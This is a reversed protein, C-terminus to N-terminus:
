SPQDFCSDLLQEPSWTKTKVAFTQPETTWDTELVYQNEPDYVLVSMAAEHAEETRGLHRLADALELWNQLKDEDSMYRDQRSKSMSSRATRNLIEIFLLSALAYHGKASAHHAANYMCDELSVKKKATKGLALSQQQQVRVAARYGERAYERQHAKQASYALVIMMNVESYDFPFGSNDDDDDHLKFLRRIYELSEEAQGLMQVVMAGLFLLKPYDEFTTQFVLLMHALIDMAAPYLGMHMYLVVVGYLIYPDQNLKPDLILGREYAHKAVTLHLSEYTVYWAQHHSYAMAILWHAKVHEDEGLKVHKQWEDFCLAAQVFDGYRYYVFALNGFIDSISCTANLFLEEEILFVERVLRRATRLLKERRAERRCLFARTHSQIKVVKKTFCADQVHRRAQRRRIMSQMVCASTHERTAQHEVIQRHNRKGSQRCRVTRQILTLAHLKRAVYHSVPGRFFRLICRRAHRCVRAQRLHASAQKKRRAELLNLAKNKKKEQTTEENNTKQLIYRGFNQLITVAARELRRHEVYTRITTQITTAAQHQHQEPTIVTEIGPAILQKVVHQQQHHEKLEQRLSEDKKERMFSQSIPNQAVTLLLEQDQAVKILDFRLARPSDGVLELEEPLEFQAEEVSFEIAPRREASASSVSSCSLSLGDNNLEPSQPLRSRSALNAREEEEEELRRHKAYVSPDLQEQWAKTTHKLTAKSPSYYVLTNHGQSSELAQLKQACFAKWEYTTEEAEELSTTDTTENLPPQSLVLAAAATRARSLTGTPPRLVPPNWIGVERSLSQSSHSRVNSNLKLSPNKRCTTCHWNTLRQVIPPQFCFTHQLTTCSVCSVMCATDLDSKCKVCSTHSHPKTKISPALIRQGIDRSRFRPGAEIQRSRRKSSRHHPSQHQKQHTQFVFPNVLDKLEQKLHTKKERYSRAQARETPSCTSELAEIMKIQQHLQVKRPLGNDISKRMMEHIMKAHEDEQGYSM